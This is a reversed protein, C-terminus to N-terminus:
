SAKRPRIFLFGVLSLLILCLGVINITSILEPLRKDWVGLFINPIYNLLATISGIVSVIFVVPKKSVFTAFALFPVLYWPQFNGSQFSAALITLGMLITALYFLKDWSWEDKKDFSKILFIPLLFITAFKTAVSIIFLIWSSIHRKQILLYVSTMAFFMMVIDLHGSVLCEILILPNLAFFIIGFVEDEPSFKRFVKGIMFSTGLFSLTMILKFLFFTAIFSQFGFYSLPITLGLWVPGYPYVRHTWRMFNLMPDGPFDLAKHLYPNQHYFTVIKADFIYNFLDYSFANYSFVLLGSTILIITWVTKKSIKKQLALRLFTLYCVFMLLLLVLFLAASLPRDFYGIYQFSKQLALIEPYKSIVLNLDIQTFSYLFLGLITFIYLPFLLKLIKM